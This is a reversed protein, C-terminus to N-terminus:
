VCGEPNECPPPPLTVPAPEASVPGSPGRNVCGEPNECAAAPERNVCGSPDECAAAPERNVCGNPDECAAATSEEPAAIKKPSGCAAVSMMVSVLLM